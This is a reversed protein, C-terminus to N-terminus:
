RRDSGPAIGHVEMVELASENAQGHQRGNEGGHEPQPPHYFLREGGM